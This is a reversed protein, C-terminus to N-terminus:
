TAEAPVPEWFRWLGECWDDYCPTSPGYEKGDFVMRWDQWAVRCPKDHRTDWENLKGVKRLLERGSDM